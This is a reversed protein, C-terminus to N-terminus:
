EDGGDDDESVDGEWKNKDDGIVDVVGVAAVSDPVVDTVVVVFIVFFTGDNDEAAFEVVAVVVAVAIVAGAFVVAVAVVGAVSKSFPSIRQIQPNM